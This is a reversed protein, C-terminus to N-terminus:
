FLRQMSFELKYRRTPVPFTGQATQAQYSMAGTDRWGLREYFARARANGAVVALWARAHGALRITTEGKRLLTVAVGTGRRARDVYLHEVEDGKVVVFGAIADDVIAVWMTSLRRQALQVFHEHQRHPLLGEPVHGVHADVWGEHWIRVVDPLDDALAPRVVPGAGDPPGPSATM